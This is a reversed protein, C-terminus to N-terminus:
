QGGAATLSDSHSIAAELRGVDGGAALSRVLVSRAESHQGLAQLTLGLHELIVPDEPLVNVARILYDLADEFRANRYHVWGLSDLFAGNEPEATLAEEILAEARDLDEGKEALFYGLSNAVEPNEPFETRLEELVRRAKGPYGDEDHCISEQIRATLRLEANAAALGFRWAGRAPDGSTRFAYGLVLQGQADADPVLTAAAAAERHLEERLGLQRADPDLAQLDQEWAVLMARVLAVRIEPDHASAEAARRYFPITAPWDGRGEALKGRLFWGRGSGPWRENIETIFASAEESRGTGLLLRALWLSPLEDLEGARAMPELLAVARAPEGQRAYFDALEIRFGLEPWPAQLVPGPGLPEGTVPDFSVEAAARHPLVERDAAGAAAFAEDHMGLAALSRIKVLWVAPDHPHAVIAEDALAPIEEGRGSQQLVNAMAVFFEPSREPFLERGRRLAEIARDTEGKEALIAAEASLVEPTAAGQRRVEELDSLAEDLRGSRLYLSSRRLRWEHNPEHAAILRDLVEIADNVYGEAALAEQFAEAIVPEDPESRYAMHLYPLAGQSDGEMLLRHGVAFNAAGGSHVQAEGLQAFAPYSGALVLATTIIQLVPHCSIRRVPVGERTTVL